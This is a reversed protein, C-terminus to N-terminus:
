TAHMLNCCLQLPKAVELLIHAKDARPPDFGGDCRMRDLLHSTKFVDQMDQTEEMLYEVSGSELASTWSNDQFHELLAVVRDHLNCLCLRAHFM